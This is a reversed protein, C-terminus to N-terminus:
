FSCMCRWANTLGNSSGAVQRVLSAAPRFSTSRSVSIFLYISFLRM